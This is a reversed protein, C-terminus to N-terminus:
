NCYGKPENWQSCDGGIRAAIVDGKRKLKSLTYEDLAKDRIDFGPKPADVEAQLLGIDRRVCPLALEILALRELDTLDGPQRAKWRSDEQLDALKGFALISVVQSGPPIGETAVEQRLADFAEQALKLESLPDASVRLM